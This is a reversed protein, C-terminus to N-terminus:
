RYVGRISFLLYRNQVDARNSFSLRSSSFVCLLCSHCASTSVQCVCVCVYLIQSLFLGGSTEIMEIEKM